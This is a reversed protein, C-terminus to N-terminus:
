KQQQEDCITKVHSGQLFSKAQTKESHTFKRLTKTM